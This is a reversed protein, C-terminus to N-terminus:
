SSKWARTKQSNPFHGSIFNAANETIGRSFEENTWRVYNVPQRLNPRPPDAAQARVAFVAGVVFLCMRLVVAGEKV